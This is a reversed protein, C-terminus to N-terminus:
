ELKKMVGLVVFFTTLAIIWNIAFIGWWVGVIGWAMTTVLFPILLLPLVIQRSLNIFFGFLPRKLGQLVAISLFLLVYAPFVFADIRLYQVGFDIVGQGEAFFQMVYPAGVYVILAGIVMMGMGLSLCYKYIEWVRDLKRAGYNQGVLSLAASNLGMAPLLVVQELRMGVGHAAIADPGFKGVFTTIVFVGVSVLMMNLSAPFGQHLIELMPELQPKLNRWACKQILLTKRLATILYLAVGTQILVTAWGIGAIGLPPLPGFGYLLLPDLALNVFFGVILANRYTKTDGLSMLGANLTSGLVMIPAGILIAHIYDLALQLVQGEAGMMVFIEDVYFWGLAMIVLSVVVSLTIAQLQILSAKKENKAGLAHAILANTGQGMGIGFAMLFFFPAFSLSLAALGVDSLTGAFYTDTLNYLTHFLMGVSSPIAIKRVLSSITDETLKM